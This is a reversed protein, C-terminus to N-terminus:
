VLRVWVGLLAGFARQSGQWSQRGRCVRVWCWPTTTSGISAVGSPDGGVSVM